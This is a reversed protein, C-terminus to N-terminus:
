GAPPLRDAPEAMESLVDRHALRLGDVTRDSGYPRVRDLVAWVDTLARELNAIRIAHQQRVAARVQEIRRMWGAVASDTSAAASRGAPRSQAADVPVIAAVPRGRDVIVTVQGTIGTSRAIQALRNRAEPLPLEIRPPASPLPVAPEAM